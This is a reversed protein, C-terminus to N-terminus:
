PEARDIAEEVHPEGLVVALKERARFLSTKVTGEKISLVDAIEKLEMGMYYRLVTVARQRYPLRGLAQAVDVRADIRTEDAVEARSAAALREGIRMETRLRRFRSRSLNMAVTMVWAQLSAIEEGRDSREWARALAEAVADEAVARSGSVVSIAAV